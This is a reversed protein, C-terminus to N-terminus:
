HNVERLYAIGFVSGAVVLVTAVSSGVTGGVINGVLIGLGILSICALLSVPLGSRGSLGPRKM